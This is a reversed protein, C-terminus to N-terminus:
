PLAKLTARTSVSTVGLLSFSKQLATIQAVKRNKYIAIRQAYSGVVNDEDTKFLFIDGRRCYGYNGNTTNKFVRYLINHFM